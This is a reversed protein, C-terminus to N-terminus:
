RLYRVQVATDLGADHVTANRAALQQCAAVTADLQAQRAALVASLRQLRDELAATEQAVEAGPLKGGLKRYREVVMQWHASMFAMVAALSTVTTWCTPLTCLLWAASAKSLRWVCQGSLRRM